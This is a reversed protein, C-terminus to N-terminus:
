VTCVCVYGRARLATGLRVLSGVYTRRLAWQHKSLPPLRLLPPPLPLTGVWVWLPLLLLLLPPLLLSLRWLPSHHPLLRAPMLLLLLLPLLLWLACVRVWM